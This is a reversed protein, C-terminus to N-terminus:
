AAAGRPHYILLVTTLAAKVRCDGKDCYVLLARKRFRPNRVLLILVHFERFCWGAIIRCHSLPCIYLDIFFRDRYAVKGVNM